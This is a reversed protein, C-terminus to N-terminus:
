EIVSLKGLEDRLLAADEYREERVADELMATLQEKKTKTSVPDAARKVADVAPVPGEGAAVGSEGFPPADDKRAVPSIADKLMKDDLFIGAAEIVKEEVFIPSKTRLAMAIADSPRADIRLTENGQTLVMKAYFTDNRLDDVIVQEIRVNFSELVNRFLDHSLPRPQTLGLLVISISQSELAGVFIPIVKEHGKPKLIIVFGKDTIALNVIKAEIM